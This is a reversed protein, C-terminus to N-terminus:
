CRSIPGKGKPELEEIFLPRRRADIKLLKDLYHGNSDM